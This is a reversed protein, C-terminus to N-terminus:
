YLYVFCGCLVVVMKWNVWYDFVFVKDFYLKLFEVFELYVEYFLYVVRDVEIKFIVLFCYMFDDVLGELSNNIGMEFDYIVDIKEFLEVFVIMIEVVKEVMVDDKFKFMVVYCFLGEKLVVGLGDFM